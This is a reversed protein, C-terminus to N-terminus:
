VADGEIASHVNDAHNPVSYGATPYGDTFEMTKQGLGNSYIVKFKKTQICDLQSGGISVQSHNTSDHSIMGKVTIVLKYAYNKVFTTTEADHIEPKYNITGCIHKATLVDGPGMKVYKVKGVQKWNLNNVRGGYIPYHMEGLVLQQHGPIIASTASAAAQAVAANTYTLGRDQGEIRMRAIYTTSNSDVCKLWVYSVELNATMNNKMEYKLYPKYIKIDTAATTADVGTLGNQLNDIAAEMDTYNLMNVEWVYKSSHVGPLVYPVVATYENSSSKPMSREIGAVRKKLSKKGRRRGQTKAYVTKGVGDVVVGGGRPKAGRGTAKSRPASARSPRRNSIARSAYNYVRGANARIFRRAVGGAGSNYLGYLARGVGPAVRRYDLNREAHPIIQRSM